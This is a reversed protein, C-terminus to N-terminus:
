GLYKKSYWQRFMRKLEEREFRSAIKYEERTMGIEALFDDFEPMAEVNVYEEVLGMREVIKRLGPPLAEPGRVKPPAKLTMARIFEKTIREILRINHEKDENWDIQSMIDYRYRIPRYGAERLLKEAVRWVEWVDGPSMRPIEKFFHKFNNVTPDYEPRPIEVWECELYGGYVRNDLPSRWVLPPMDAIVHVFMYKEPPIYVRKKREIEEELERIRKRAKRIEEELDARRDKLEEIEDKLKKITEEYEKRLKEEVVKEASKELKKIEEDKRKIERQLEDIKRTLDEFLVEAVSKKKEEEPIFKQFEPPELMRKYAEGYELDKYENLATEIRDWEVPSGYHEEWWERWIKKLKEFEEDKM